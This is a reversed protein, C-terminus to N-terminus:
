AKQVKFLKALNLDQLLEILLTNEIQMSINITDKLILKNVYGIVSSTMSISDVLHIIINKEKAMLSDLNTKITQFDTITKINRNITTYVTLTRINGYITTYM